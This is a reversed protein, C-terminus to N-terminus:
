VSYAYVCTIGLYIYIHIFTLVSVYQKRIYIPTSSFHTCNDDDLCSKITKKEKTTKRTEKLEWNLFSAARCNNRSM